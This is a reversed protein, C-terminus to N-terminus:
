RRRATAVKSGNVEVRHLNCSLAKGDADGTTPAAGHTEDPRCVAAEREAMPERPHFRIDLRVNIPGRARRPPLPSVHVHEEEVRRPGDGQAFRCAVANTGAAPTRSFSSASPLGARRGQRRSVPPACCRPAPSPSTRGAHGRRATWPAVNTGNEAWVRMLPTFRSPRCIRFPAAPHRRANTPRGSAPCEVLTHAGAHVPDGRPAVGARTASSRAHKAHDVELFM